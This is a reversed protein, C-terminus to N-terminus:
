KIADAPCDHELCAGCEVCKNPDIHYQAYGQGKSAYIADVPCLEECMGCSICERTIKPM